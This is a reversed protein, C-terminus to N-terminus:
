TEHELCVSSERATPTVQQRAKGDMECIFRTEAEVLNFKIRKIMLILICETEILDPTPTAWLRENTSFDLKDPM